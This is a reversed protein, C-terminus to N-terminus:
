QINDNGIVKLSGSESKLTAANGFDFTDFITYSLAM